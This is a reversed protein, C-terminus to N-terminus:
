PLAPAWLEGAAESLGNTGMGTGTSTDYCRQRSVFFLNEKVGSTRQRKDGLM